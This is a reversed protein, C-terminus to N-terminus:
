GQTAARDAGGIPLSVSPSYAGPANTDFDYEYLTLSGFSRAHQGLFFTLANPVAFFIHIRCAREQPNRQTKLQSSIHQALTYAHDADVISATGPAPFYCHIIRSVAPLHRKVYMSVDTEINHTASIAVAVEHGQVGIPISAISWDPHSHSTIPLNPRWIQRGRPGTQMLAVDAGSKSDLCWGAVFAISGHAPMNLLYRFGPKVCRLLFNIVEPVIVDNWDDLRGIARGEFYRLLCLHEDTEDEIHEAFRLFSRIGLRRGGPELAPRGIWLGEHRCVRELESPTFSSQGAQVFKRALGEYPHNLTGASVPKLGALQLKDNLIDGLRELSPGQQLRLPALAMRLEDDSTIGLHERWAARIKGTDSRRGGAALVDWRLRGDTLSVLKALEDDPHICWPSYVYFRCGAGKPAHVIQANRIRQLLSVSKANIFAPDMMGQWTFAGNAAVHFKVQFFDSTLPLGSDHMGSYHVAVDDLSKINEAEIQVRVVKTRDDFLRCAQLWFFRAQYDDGFIRAAVARAMKVAEPM